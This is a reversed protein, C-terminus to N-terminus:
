TGEQQVATEDSEFPIMEGIKSKYENKNINMKSREGCLHMHIHTSM